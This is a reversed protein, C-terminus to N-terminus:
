LAVKIVDEDMVMGALVKAKLLLLQGQNKLLVISESAVKCMLANDENSDCTRETDNGNLIQPYAGNNQTQM